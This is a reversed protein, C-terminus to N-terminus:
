RSSTACCGHGSARAGGARTCGCGSSRARGGAGLEQVGGCAVPEGDSSAVVFAGAGPAMHEDDHHDGPDFGTPFRADLEDFYSQVARKAEPSGPHVSRIDVTAARVLLDATALAETM